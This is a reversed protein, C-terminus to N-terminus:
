NHTFVIRDLRSINQSIIFDNIKDFIDPDSTKLLNYQIASISNIMMLPLRNSTDIFKDLSEDLDRGDRIYNCESVSRDMPPIIKNIADWYVRSNAKVEINFIKIAHQVCLKYYNDMKEYNLLFNYRSLQAMQSVGGGNTIGPIHIGNKMTVENVIATDIDILADSIIIFDIIFYKEPILSQDISIKSHNNNNLLSELIKKYIMKHQNQIYIGHYDLEIILDILSQMDYNLLDLKNEVDSIFLKIFSDTYKQNKSYDLQDVDTLLSLSNNFFKYKNFSQRNILHHSGSISIIYCANM